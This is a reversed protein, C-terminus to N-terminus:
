EARYQAGAFGGIGDRVRTIFDPVLDDRENTSCWVDGTMPHVAVAVGRGTAVSREVAGLTGSSNVGLSPRLLHAIGM